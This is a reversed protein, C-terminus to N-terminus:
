LHQVAEAYPTGPSFGEQLAVFARAEDENIEISFLSQELGFTGAGRDYTIALLRRRQQDACWDSLERDNPEPLDEVRCGSLTALDRYLAPVANDGYYPSLHDIIEERSLRRPWHMHFLVALLVTRLPKGTSATATKKGGRRMNSPRQTAFDEEM